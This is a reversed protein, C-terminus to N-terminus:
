SKKSDLHKKIAERVIEAIAINQFYSYARLDNYTTKDVIVHLRQSQEAIKKGRMMNITYCVQPM